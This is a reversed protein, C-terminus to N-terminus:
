NRSKTARFKWGVLGLGILLLTWTEAEPVPANPNFGTSPDFPSASNAGQNFWVADIFFDSDNSAGYLVPGGLSGNMNASVTLYQWEGTLTSASGLITASGSNGAIILHASGTVAYVWASLTYTGHFGYSYQYLGDNLNGTIHALHDGEILPSAAWDTILTTNVTNGWQKWSDLASDISQAYGSTVDGQFGSEFNGNYALNGTQNVVPLAYAASTGLGPAFGSTALLISFVIRAPRISM